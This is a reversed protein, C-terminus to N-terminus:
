RGVAPARLRPRGSRRGRGIGIVVPVDFRGAADLEALTEARRKM